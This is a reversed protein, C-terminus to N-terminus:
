KFDRIFSIFILKKYNLIQTKKKSFYTNRTKKTFLKLHKLFCFYFYSVSLPPNWANDELFCIAHSSRRSLFPRLFSFRYDRPERYLFFHWNRRSIERICPIQSKCFSIQNCHICSIGKSFLPMETHTLNQCSVHIRVRLFQRIIFPM